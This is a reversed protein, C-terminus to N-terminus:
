CFESGARSATGRVLMRAVIPVPENVIALRITPDTRGQASIRANRAVAKEPNAAEWQTKLHPYDIWCKKHPHRHDAGLINKCTDCNSQNKRHSGNDGDGSYPRKRNPNTSSSSTALLAHAAAVRKAMLATSRDAGLNKDAEINASEMADDLTAPIAGFKKHQQNFATEWSSFAPGLGRIFHNITRPESATVDVNIEKLEAIASTFADVYEAVNSYDDLNIEDYHTNLQNFIADGSPKYKEQLKTIVGVRDTDYIPSEIYGYARKGCRNRIGDVAKLQSRTWKNFELTYAAFLAAHAATAAATQVGLPISPVVAPAAVDHDNQLCWSNIDRIWQLWEPKTELKKISSLTKSSSFSSDSMNVSLNILPIL